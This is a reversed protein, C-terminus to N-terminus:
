HAQFCAKLWSIAETIFNAQHGEHSMRHDGGAQLILKKPNQATEYIELAQTSPVTKDNEGHIVLINTLAPLSDTLDFELGLDEGRSFQLNTHPLSENELEMSPSRIPAAFSVLGAYKMKSWCGICAAAGMSSGFLAAINGTDPHDLIVRTAALLDNCRSDLSAGRIFDGQSQGCGCHDFRFFAMGARTCHRALTMQKPSHSSSQLGHSGIVVPPRNESPLHLTGMLRTKGSSFIIQRETQNTM